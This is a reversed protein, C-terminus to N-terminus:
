NLGLLFHTIAPSAFKDFGINSPHLGDGLTTTWNAMGIGSATLMNLVPVGYLAAEGVMAGVIANVCPVSNCGGHGNSPNDFYPTIFIVKMSPNAAELVEITKGYVATCNGTMSPTDGPTGVSPTTSAVQNYYCGGDNTGLWILMIDVNAIAQALTQGTTIGHLISDSGGGVPTGSYTGTGNGGGFNEFINTTSRGSHSDEFVMTMGTKAAVYNQWRDTFAASISDGFVGFRVSSVKSAAIATAINAAEVTPSNYGFAQYSGPLTSGPVLMYTATGTLDGMSRFYAAGAPVTIPTSAHSQGGSIFSKDLAYFAYGLFSAYSDTHGSESITALNMVPIYPTYFQSTAGPNQVAGTTNNIWGNQALSPDFLNRVQPSNGQVLAGAVIQANNAATTVTGAVVGVATAIKSAETAPDDYGFSVYSGPVTSGPVIMATALSVNAINMRFYAAGGPVTIATNAAATAGSIFAQSIDYFAYGFSPDQYNSAVNSIITSYGAVPIYNTITSGGFSFVTGDVIKLLGSSTSVNSLDFLNRVVPLSALRLSSEQGVTLGGSAGTAGAQAQLGWWSPSSQPTNGINANQLSVYSSGDTAHAADGLAYTTGSAYNGRFTAPPGAAGTAGAPGSAVVWTGTAGTAANCIYITSNGTRLYAAPSVCSGSPAGAGATMNGSGGSGTVATWTASTVGSAVSLTYFSGPTDTRSYLCPSTCSFTPAGSGAYIGSPAGTVSGSGVGVFVNQGGIFGCTYTVNPTLDTRLESAGLACAGRPIGLITVTNGTPIVYNDFNFAASISVDSAGTKWIVNGANDKVFLGGVGTAVTSSGPIAGFTVAKCATATPFCLSGATLVAGTADPVRTATFGVTQGALTGSQFLYLAIFAISFLIKRM